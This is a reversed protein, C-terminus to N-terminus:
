ILQPFVRDAATYRKRPFLFSLYKCFTEKDGYFAEFVREPFRLWYNASAGVRRGQNM